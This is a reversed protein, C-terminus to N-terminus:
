LATELCRVLFMKLLKFLKNFSTQKIPIEWQLFFITDKIVVFGDVTDDNLSIDLLNQLLQVPQFFGHFTMGWFHRYGLLEKNLENHIDKM